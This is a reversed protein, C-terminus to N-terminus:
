YFLGNSSGMSQARAGLRRLFAEVTEGVDPNGGRVGGGVSPMEPAQSEQGMMNGAGALNQPTLFQSLGSAPAAVQSAALGGATPSQAMLPLMSAANYATPAAGTLLSPAYADIPMTPAMMAAGASSASAQGAGAAGAGSLAGGAGGLAGGMAASKLSNGLSGGRLLSTGGGVGAGILALTVPDGM